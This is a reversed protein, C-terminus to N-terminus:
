EAFNEAHFGRKGRYLSRIYAIDGEVDGTPYFTRMIGLERVGYDIYALQVPVGARLAIYYFGRRWESVRGRTGEPTVALRFEVRRAFEMVMRDTISMSRSRDVPIGGLWRFIYGLPFFFWERKMLFSARLGVAGYYLKGLFFDLNSTHPAVCIVSRPVDCEPVRMRWGLLCLIFHYIERKM